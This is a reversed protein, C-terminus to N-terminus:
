VCVGFIYIYRDVPLTIYIVIPGRVPASCKKDFTIYIYYVIYMYTYIRHTYVIHKYM